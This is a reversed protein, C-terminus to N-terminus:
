PRVEGAPVAAVRFGVTGERFGPKEGYVPFHWDRAGCHVLRQGDIWSGGRCVRVPREENKVQYPTAPGTWDTVEGGPLPAYWDRCWERVNGLMDFLQLANPKKLAVPRFMPGNRRTFPGATKAYWAIGSLAETEDGAYHRTRTGARAAMEWQAETPLAFVFGDRLRGAARERGTLKACFEGAQEWTMNVAPLRSVDGSVNPNEKPFAPRPPANTGMIAEYQAVTTETRAMWFERTIRVTTQPGDGMDPSNNRYPDDPAAGMAFTGPAVRVLEIGIDPVYWAGIQRAVAEPAPDDLAPPNTGEAPRVAAPVASTGAPESPTPTDDDELRDPSLGEGQALDPSSAASPHWSSRQIWIMAAVAAAVILLVAAATLAKYVTSNREGGM